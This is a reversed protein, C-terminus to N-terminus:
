AMNVPKGNIEGQIAPLNLEGPYSVEMAALESYECGAHAPPLLTAALLLALSTRIAHPTKGM